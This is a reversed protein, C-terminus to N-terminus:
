VGIVIVTAVLVVMMGVGFGVAGVRRRGASDKSGASKWAKWNNDLQLAFSQAEPSDSGMESFTDPNVVPNLWGDSGFHDAGDNAYLAQRATEAAQVIDGYNSPSSLTVYRYVTSAFLATGSADPFTSSNTIQQDVYNYFIGSSPLNNTMGTHIEEIWDGLDNQQSKFQSAYPSNKITALVRLMGAAAWGNGTSWHGPDTVQDDPSPSYIHQWLSASSTLLASRYLSIQTYAELILSTNQTVAGYYALFPPVMYVFDSWLEVSDVRHSIAGGALGSTVRPTGTLLLDLQAQAAGVWDVNPANTWNGLLVPVGLSAPDGSSGDQGWLQSSSRNTVANTAIAIIPELSAVSYPPTPSLYSPSFVALQSFDIELVTEAETGAEWSSTSSQNMRDRILGLLSDSLTQGFASPVGGYLLTFVNLASIIRM